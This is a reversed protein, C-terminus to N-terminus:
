HNVRLSRWCSARFEFPTHRVSWFCVLVTFCRLARGHHSYFDASNLIRMGALRQRATPRPAPPCRIVRISIRLPYVLGRLDVENRRSLGRFRAIQICVELIIYKMLPSISRWRATRGRHFSFLSPSSIYIIGGQYIFVSRIIGMSGRMGLSRRLCETTLCRKIHSSRIGYFREKEFVVLITGWVGM